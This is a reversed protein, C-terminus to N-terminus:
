GVLELEGFTAPTEPEALILDDFTGVAAMQKSGRGYWYVIVPRYDTTSTTMATAIQQLTM